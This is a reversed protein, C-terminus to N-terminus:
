RDDLKGAKEFIAARFEDCLAGLTESDLESIHYKPTDGNYGEQRPKPRQKVLVYNPTRFPELEIDLKISM